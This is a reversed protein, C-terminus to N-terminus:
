QRQVPGLLAALSCSDGPGMGAASPQGNGDQEGSADQSAIRQMTVVVQGLQRCRDPSSSRIIQWSVCIV